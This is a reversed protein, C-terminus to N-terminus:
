ESAKILTVPNEGDLTEDIKLDPPRSSGFESFLDQRRELSFSDALMQMPRIRGTNGLLRSKFFGNSTKTTNVQNGLCKIKIYKMEFNSVTIQRPLTLIM